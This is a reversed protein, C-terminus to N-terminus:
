SSNTRSGPGPNGPIHAEEPVPPFSWATTQRRLSRGHPRDRFAELPLLKVFDALEDLRPRRPYCEERFGNQVRDLHRLSPSDSTRPRDRPAVSARPIGPPSARANLYFGGTPSSRGGTFFPSRRWPSGAVELIDNPGYAQRRHEVESSTLGAPNPPWSGIRELPVKRYM